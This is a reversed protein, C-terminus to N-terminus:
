RAAVNEHFGFLGIAQSRHLEISSAHSHKRVADVRRRRFGLVRVLDV